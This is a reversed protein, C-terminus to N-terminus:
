CKSEVSAKKAWMVSGSKGSTIASVAFNRSEDDNFKTSVSSGRMTMPSQSQHDRGRRHDTAVHREHGQRDIVDRVENTRGVLVTALVVVGGHGGGDLRHLDVDVGEHALVGLALDNRERLAHEVGGTVDTSGDTARPVHVDPRGVTPTEGTSRKGVLHLDAARPQRRGHLAGRHVGFGLEHQQRVSELHPRNLPHGNARVRAVRATTSRDGPDAGRELSHQARM